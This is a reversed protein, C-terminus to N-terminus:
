NNKGKCGTLLIWRQNMTFFRQVGRSKMVPKPVEKVKKMVRTMATSTMAVKKKKAVTTKRTKPVIARCRKLKLPQLLKGRKRLQLRLNKKVLAAM